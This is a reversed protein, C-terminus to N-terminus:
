LLAISQTENEMRGLYNKLLRQGLKACPAEYIDVWPMQRVDSMIENWSVSRLEQMDSAIMKMSTALDEDSPESISCLILLWLRVLRLDPSNWVDATHFKRSLMKLLTSIRAEATGPYSRCRRKVRIIWITAGLRLTESIIDCLTTPESRRPQDLLHHSVPNTMFAMLEENDWIADGKTALEFQLLAALANLDGICSMVSMFRTDQTKKDNVVSILPAPLMKLGPRFVSASAIDKSLPFLPITDHLLAATIDVWSIMLMLDQNAELTSIGGRAAILIWIGKVHIMAQDFDLSTFNYCILALVADFVNDSTASSADSSALRSEICQITELSRELALSRLEGASRLYLPILVDPSAFLQQYHHLFASKKFAFPFWFTNTSCTSGMANKGAVMILTFGYASFMDEGWEKEFVSLAHIIPPIATFPATYPAVLDKTPAQSHDDQSSSDEDERTSSQAMSMEVPWVLTVFQPVKSPKRRSRGIDVMLHRRVKSDLSKSRTRRQTADNADLFLLRRKKPPEMM